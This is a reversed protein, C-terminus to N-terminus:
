GTIGDFYEKVADWDKCRVVGEPLPELQNWPYDGFLVCWLGAELAPLINSPSDDILYSAGIEHLAEAKTRSKGELNYQATFHVGKFLDAFHEDLWDRTVAEIITDRATVIVLDYCSDLWGLVQRAEGFPQQSLFMEDKFFAHVRRIADEYSAAGWKSIDKSGNDALTLSTGYTVNHWTMLDQFHPLLVEDIDVAIIPKSM